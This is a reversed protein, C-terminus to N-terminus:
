VAYQHILYAHHNRRLTMAHQHLPLVTSIHSALTMWVNGQNQLSNCLLLFLVLVALLLFIVAM